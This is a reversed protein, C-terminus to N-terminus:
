GGRNDVASSLTAAAEELERGAPHEGVRDLLEQRTVVSLAGRLADTALEDHDAVVYRGEVLVLAAEPKTSRLLQELDQVPIPM